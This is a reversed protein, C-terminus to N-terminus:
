ADHGAEQLHQMGRGDQGAYALDLLEALHMVRVPAGAKQLGAQIQFHCGSNTVVVVDAGTKLINAVKEDLLQGAIDPHVINYVGASGCCRDAGDLEVYEVGPVAAILRRPPAVVHQANRLHCSDAYTVRLTRPAPLAARLPALRATNGPQALFESLDFVKGVFAAARAAYVPDDRLLDGYTKLHAGCGGANVVVATVGAAEFARINRRALDCASAHEELHGHLAGCCTQDPPIVVEFGAKELVSITARNVGGLFADQVCGSFFAVRAPDAVRPRNASAPQPRSRSWGVKIPPLLQEMAALSTPLLRSHRVLWQVGSRQYLWLCVAAIRLPARRPIIRRVVVARLLREKLSPRKAAALQSRALELIAGFQVGSPCAVECARCALCRDLHLRLGADTPPLTSTALAQALVIRGRPGDMETGFVGYTPCAPLCMGCHVCRRTLDLLKATDSM